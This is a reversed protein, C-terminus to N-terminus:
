EKPAFEIEVTRCGGVDKRAEAVPRTKCGGIACKKSGNRLAQRAKHEAIRENMKKISALDFM